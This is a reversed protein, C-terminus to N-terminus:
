QCQPTCEIYYKSTKKQSNGIERPEQTSEVIKEGNAPCTHMRSDFTDRSLVKNYFQYSIDPIKKLKQMSPIM